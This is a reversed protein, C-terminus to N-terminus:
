KATMKQFFNFLPNGNIKQKNAPIINYGYRQMLHQLKEYGFFDIYNWLVQHFEAPKRVSKADGILDIWYKLYPRFDKEKVLEIDIFVEFKELYDFFIDFHDRILAQKTSFGDEDADGEKYYTKAKLAECVEFDIYFISEGSSFKVERRNWDLMLMVDKVIPDSRFEKIEKAVFEAKKWNQEKEYQNVGRWFLFFGIIPTIISVVEKILTIWYKYKEMDKFLYAFVMSITFIM